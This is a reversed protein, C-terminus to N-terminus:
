GVRTDSKIILNCLYLLIVTNEQENVTKLLTQWHFCTFYASYENQLNIKVCM